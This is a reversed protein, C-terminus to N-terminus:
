SHRDVVKLKSNNFVILTCQNRKKVIKIPPEKLNTSKYSSYSMLVVRHGSFTSM